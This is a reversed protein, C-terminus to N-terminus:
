ETFDKPEHVKFSAITKNLLKNQVFLVSIM